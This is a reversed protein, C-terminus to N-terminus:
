DQYHDSCIRDLEEEPNEVFYDDIEVRDCDVMKLIHGLSDFREKFLELPSQERDVALDLLADRGSENVTVTVGDTSLDKLHDDLDDELLLEYLERRPSEVVGEDITLSNKNRGPLTHMYEFLVDELVTTLGRAGIDHDTAKEAISRLAEETFDLEIGYSAFDRKYQNLISSKSETLIRYMDDADLDDLFTKVPLRGVFESELGFDVLDEVSCHKLTEIDREQSVEANFGIGGRNLREEIITELGPFAGSVIFLIKRTNIKEDEGEAGLMGQMGKMMSMPSSPDMLNIETEELLKLLNTQVDRGSVDRDQNDSSCIKDIEDIFVIGHEAKELNNDAKEVLERVLSDVNKGVYGTGSFKTADSKVFPVGIYESLVEVLHTKGVGTNGIMLINKKQYFPDDREIQHYHYCVANALRKKAQNQGIVYENLESKIEGPTYDFDLTWDNHDEGANDEPPGEMFDSDIQVEGGYKTKFDQLFNQLDELPSDNDNSSM